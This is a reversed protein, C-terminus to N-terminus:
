LIEKLRTEFAEKYEFGITKKRVVRHRDILFTTPIGLIGGFQREVEPATLLLTYQVGLQKAFREVAVPDSDLAIGVVALGRDGYRNQLDQFCPMEVKCPECWTAWFDVLLVKGRFDESSVERGSTDKLRFEPMRAGVEGPVPAAAWPAPTRRAIRSFGSRRVVLAVLVTLALLAVGWRRWSDRM